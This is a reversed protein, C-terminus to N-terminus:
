IIGTYFPGFGPIKSFFNFHSLEFVFIESSWFLGPTYRLKKDWIGDSWFKGSLASLGNRDGHDIDPLKKLITLNLLKIM